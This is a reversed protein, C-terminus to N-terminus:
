GACVTPKRDRWPRAEELQRALRFLTSEDGLRGTFMMGIPLGASNWCLPVSMSPQGSVNMVPTYPIFAFAEAAAQDITAGGKFLRLVPLTAGLKELVAQVGVPELFGLPPPPMAVTPSLLLDYGESFLLVERGAQQLAEVAQVYEGASYIEGMRVALWTKQEFDSREAKRGMRAEATRIAAWTHASVLILLSRAFAAGDLRPSAEVVDHGLEGLLRVTEELASACEPHLTGPLFPERRFAIKLRGAPRGVEDLFPREPKPLSVADGLYPGALVDLMAASDRVSLSLVHELALGHWVETDFPGVPTRGRTPKLGFVGCCSAPIRISGGGDGGGACPVIRAAVAAASGGSSGGTSRTTDWPNRTPGFREPETTPLFGLEPTSTKGVFVLGSALYRDVTAANRDPRWDGYFRCGHRMPEGALMSSLDKLLFPVGTFSGQTATAQAQARARDYLKHVVANLAPNLKEIRAICEEVLEVATVQKGRVLEALGLGDYASYDAFGAM